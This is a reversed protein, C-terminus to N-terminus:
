RAGQTLADVEAHVTRAADPIAAVLAPSLDPGDGFDEGEIGIVVVRKPIRDLARGLAVSEGVGLAHSSPHDTRGPVDDGATVDYRHITGPSAGTRVADVIIAADFAEWADIMRTPEGDLIASEVSPALQETATRVVALGIGDDRRMDNGVGMVIIRGTV